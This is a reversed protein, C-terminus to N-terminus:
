NIVSKLTEAIKEIDEDNLWWGCPLAIIKDMVFDTGPLSHNNRNFGTYVDNRQHMISALVGNSKLKM